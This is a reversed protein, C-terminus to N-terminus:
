QLKNIEKKSHIFNENNSNFNKKVFKAVNKNFDEYKFSNCNRIVYGEHNKLDITKLLNQNFFGIYITDVHIINLEKFIYITDEYSLCINNEDYVSFGYFYSKLNNYYINHKIYLYEGCIRYGTPINFKIDGHFKKIWSRYEYNTFDISRSHIYDNYLTINEGDFKYSINIMKNKFIDLSKIIKDDNSIKESQPIHLTKPYKYYM